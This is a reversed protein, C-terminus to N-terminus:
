QFQKKLDSVKYELAIAKLIISSALYKKESPIQDCKYDFLSRSIWKSAQQEKLHKNVPFHLSRLDLISAAFFSATAIYINTMKTQTCLALSKKVTDLYVM